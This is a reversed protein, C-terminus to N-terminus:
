EPGEHDTRRRQRWIDLLEPAPKAERDDLAVSEGLGRRDDREIVRELRALARDARRNLADLYADGVVALNEDAAFVDGGAVVDGVLAWLRFGLARSVAHEVAFAPEVGAVDPFTVFLSPQEDLAALLFHDDRGVAEIHKGLVDPAHEVLLGPYALGSDDARDIARLLPDMGDEDDIGPGIDIRYDPLGVRPQLVMLANACRREPWARVQ